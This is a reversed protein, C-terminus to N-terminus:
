DGEFMLTPVTNLYQPNSLLMAGFAGLVKGSTGVTSVNEQKLVLELQNVYQDNFECKGM